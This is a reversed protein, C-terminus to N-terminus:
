RLTFRKLFGNLWPRGTALDFTTGPTVTGGVLTDADGYVAEWATAGVPVVVSAADAGRTAASAGTPIPTGPSPSQFFNGGWLRLKRGNMNVGSNGYYIRVTDGASIGATRTFAIEFWGDAMPTVTWGNVTGSPHASFDVARSNLNTATTENRVLFSTWSFAEISAVYLKGSIGTASGAGALIRALTVASNPLTIEVANNTGDPAPFGGVRSGETGWVSNAFDDSRTFLNTAATELLLGRDTIRPADAPFTALTGNTRSALGVGTRAYSVGAVATFDAAPVGEREYRGAVFDLILPTAAASRSAVRLSLDPALM